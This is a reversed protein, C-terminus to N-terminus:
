MRRRTVLEPQCNNKKGGCATIERDGLKAVRHERLGGISRVVAVGRVAEELRISDDLASSEAVGAGRRECHSISAQQLSHALVV